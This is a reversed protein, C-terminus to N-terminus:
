ILYKIIHPIVANPLNIFRWIYQYEIDLSKYKKDWDEKFKEDKKSKYKLMMFVLISDELIDKMSVFLVGTADLKKNVCGFTGAIIYNGEVKRINRREEGDDTTEPVFFQRKKTCYGIQSIYENKEPLRIHFDTLYEGSQLVFEKVDIFDQSGKHVIEKTEGTVFNRFTTSIGFIANKNQYLGTYVKIKTIKMKLLEKQGLDELDNWFKSEHNISGINMTSHFKSDDEGQGESM